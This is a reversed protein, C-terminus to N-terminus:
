FFMISVSSVLEDLIFKQTDKNMFKIVYWALNMHDPCSYFSMGNEPDLILSSM